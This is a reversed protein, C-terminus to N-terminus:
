REDSSVFRVGKTVFFLYEPYVVQRKHREDLVTGFATLLLPQPLVSLAM